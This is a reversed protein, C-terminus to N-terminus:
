KDSIQRGIYTANARKAEARVTPSQARESAWSSAGAIPLHFRLFDALEEGPTVPIEIHGDGDVFASPAAFAKGM